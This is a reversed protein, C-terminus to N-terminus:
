RSRIAAFWNRRHRRAAIPVRRVLGRAAAELGEAPARELEEVGVVGLHEREQAGVGRLAGVLRFPNDWFMTSVDNKFTSHRLGVRVGARENNWEGALETDDVSYDIVEPIETVNSFGFSAGYPRNGNRNEHKHELGWSFGQLGGFVLYIVVALAVNYALNGLFLAAVSMQLGNRTMAQTLEEPKLGIVRGYITAGAKLVLRIPAGSTIDVDNMAAGLLGEKGANFQYRGPAMAELQFLGNQDTRASSYNMQAGGVPRATVSADAVPAGGEDVVTGSVVLRSGGTSDRSPPGGLVGSVPSSTAAMEM